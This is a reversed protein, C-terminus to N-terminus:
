YAGEAKIVKWFTKAIIVLDLWVSWREIYFMDMQIRESYTTTQRGTVQWFGTLGPKCSLLRALHPGYRQREDGSIVRPGVFALKGSLVSFFQPFEDLSYRRMFKGIRLLRPDNKLKFQRVFKAKLQPDQRLMDDAGNLMSRFKRYYQIKGDCGVFERQYFVPGRDELNVLLWVLPTLCLTVISGLLGVVVDIVRKLFQHWAQLWRPRTYFRFGGTHEDREYRGNAAVLMRSYFEVNVRREKCWQLLEFMWEESDSTGELAVVLIDFRANSVIERWQGIAGLLPVTPMSTAAVDFQWPELLVGMMEYGRHRQVSLLQQYEAVGAVSGVLLVKRRGLGAKWAARYIIRLMVRVFLLLVLGFVFWAASLYLSIYESRSISFNLIFFGLFSLSIAKCVLELEREPRRLEPSKYNELIYSVLAFFPIYFFRYEFLNFANKSVHLSHEVFKSALVQASVIVMLDGALYALGSLFPSILLRALVSTPADSRAPVQVLHAEHAAISERTSM